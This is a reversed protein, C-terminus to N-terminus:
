AQWSCAGGVSLSWLLVELAAPTKLYGPLVASSERDEEWARATLERRAACM